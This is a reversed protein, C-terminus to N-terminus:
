CWWRSSSGDGVVVVNDRSKHPDCPSFDRTHFLVLARPPPRSVQCRFHPGVQDIVGISSKMSLKAINEMDRKRDKQHHKFNQLSSPVRIPSVISSTSGSFRHRVNLQPQQAGDEVECSISRVVCDAGDCTDTFLNMAAKKLHIASIFEM